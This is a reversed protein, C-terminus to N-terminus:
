VFGQFAASPRMKGTWAGGMPAEDLGIQKRQPNVREPHKVYILDEVIYRHHRAEERFMMNEFSM